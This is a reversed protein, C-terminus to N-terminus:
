IRSRSLGEFGNVFSKSFGPISKASLSVGNKGFRENRPSLPNEELAWSETKTRDDAATINGQYVTAFHLSM